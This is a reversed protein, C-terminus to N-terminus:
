VKEQQSPLTQPPLNVVGEILAGFFAICSIALMFFKFFLFSVNAEVQKLLVLCILVIIFIYAVFTFATVVLGHYDVSLCFISVFAIAELAGFKILYVHSHRILLSMVDKLKWEKPKNDSQKQANNNMSYNGKRKHKRCDQLMDLM